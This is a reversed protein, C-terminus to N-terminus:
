EEKEQANHAEYISIDPEPLSLELLEQKHALSVTAYTSLPQHHHKIINEVYLHSIANREVALAVAEAVQEKGYVPILELIRKVHQTAGLHKQKLLQYFEQAKPNLAMFQLLRKKTRKSHQAIDISKQHEDDILYRHRDYFRVHRAILSENHYLALRYPFVKMRLLKGTYQAPVSYRNTDLTVLAQKSARVNRITACDYENIPCSSLAPKEEQWMEDPVRHTTKHVRKNAVSDRWLTAAEKLTFFEDISNGYLFNKKVYGVGSEVRGKEHPAKVNCAHPSFGFFEAFELYRPNFVPDEGRKHALVGTKLNDIIVREPVGGFYRFANVHCSLFHEMTQGLALEVYIKRSWSLVMVFISLKRVTNGVKITKYEGWDFQASEGPKFTLVRYAPGRYSPRVLRVYRKVTSYSGQYGIEGIRQYVQQATYDFRELMAQIKAKFPHLMTPAVGKKRPTYNKRGLWKRVTRPDLDLQKGIQEPTLNDRTSLLKIKHFEEYSIM